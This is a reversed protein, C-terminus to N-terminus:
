GAQKILDAWKLDGAVIPRSKRLTGDIEVHLEVFDGGKDRGLVEFHGPKRRPAGVVVFGNKEATRVAAMPDAEPGDDVSTGHEIAVPEAGAKAIRAVKLESSKMEGWLDVHDGKHLKIKGAGSPGLNALITGKETNVVFRHAFVDTVDGSLSIRLGHSM